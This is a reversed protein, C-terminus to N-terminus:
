QNSTELTLSVAGLHSAPSNGGNRRVVIYSIRASWDRTIRTMWGKNPAEEHLLLVASSEPKASARLHVQNKKLGRPSRSRVEKLALVSRSNGHTDSMNPSVNGQGVGAIVKNQPGSASKVDRNMMSKDMSAVSSFFASVNRGGRAHLTEDRFTVTGRKPRISPKHNLAQQVSEM